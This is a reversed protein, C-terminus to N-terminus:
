AKIMDNAHMIYNTFRRNGIKYVEATIRPNILKIKKEM